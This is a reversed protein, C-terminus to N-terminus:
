SILDVVVLKLLKEDFPPIPEKAFTSKESLFSNLDGILRKWDTVERYRKWIKRLESLRKKTYAISLLKDKVAEWHKEIERDEPFESLYENLELEIERIMKNVFKTSSDRDLEVLASDVRQKQELEKYTSKINELISKNIEYIKEFFDPIVRGESPSCEIFDIIETKNKIVAGSEVDYLYWFHFDNGYKYYFFVGSIRNKKLGSHVGYPINELEEVAKKNLFEKLPQYFKEGGGYVQKELEDLITSDKEKIRRIVGFVKPHIEEGLITQDLGISEDIGIIKNQLIQVLRLLEELEDEPFFNYICIEKFPSGIRDIRGARQIMRTPNWHLDYNILFQATQLNMGESLVDTSMLIDVEKDFFKKIIKERKNSSKSTIKGSSSIAEIKLNSFRKDSLIDKYLYELTDAYYTFVVIQGKNSLELLNQKLVKLKADEEPGIKKARELIESLMKIDKDIDEFLEEKRYDELKFDELDEIFDELEEDVSMLYKNFSKKTLLKRKLLYEKLRGLFKIHRDISIRFADVSSELRKLFITRLIGELAIMRGLTLEEDQTLKEEKKYQLIRYYAMTLESTIVDSIRMYMGQYTKDSEYSINELIREPFEIKEEIEEGNPLKKLIYADPYNKKIYERTRRISIENLLDNLLSPDEKKDVDKFFKFLDSINEKIFATRDMSVLLMIQWYLDWITNNIPTATLFLICPRKGDTSIHDNVLTFFNEWRNSLPNRFNHSEDVVVLEIDTLNGGSVLRKVRDLFDSSALEEQSLVSETITISRMEDKWMGRLQAPCIVLVNKREYYGMEELIKKAIWTKGLGVSDAVLVGGYKELRLFIRNIADAQFEALNVKSPALGKREEKEEEAKLDEKQLEYLAKIYIEYPKYKRSGYRSDELLEILEAKFDRADQWFPDFWKGRAYVAESDLSVLNLETNHTLGSFTFNSSGIIVLNDFIYAKGHLFEKDYLRIEVNNRKLFDILSKVNSEDEKTLDLGEVDEKMMRLLEEGLTRDSKIEPAKGLLLKFRSVDNLHDKVMSYAQVDFFASAIDLKTDPTAELVDNLFSALKNGESNDIIKPPIIM